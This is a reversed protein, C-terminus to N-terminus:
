QHFREIRAGYSSWSPHCSKMQISKNPPGVSQLGEEHLRGHWQCHKTIWLFLSRRDLDTPHCCYLFNETRFLKTEYGTPKNRIKRKPSALLFVILFEVIRIRLLLGQQKM